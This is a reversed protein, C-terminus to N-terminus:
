VTVHSFRKGPHNVPLRDTGFLNGRMTTEQVDDKKRILGREQLVPTVLEAFDKFSGPKIAYTINFGDVDAENVWREMEDAIKEPTGVVVPGIGGIGVFEAIERINWKKNPDVKTFIEVRSRMSDNEVFQLDEDLDYESLDIGTWGSFLSMAGEISIHQKYDEYKADAEEQTRGVIPTFLSYVKIDEGKRGFEEAQGRIKDVFKRAIDTTPMSVYIGEAHEAAFASGRPSLGAQFIVPTRQPSPECLHAGPVSFYKGKHQIDHVKDPDVYMKRKTDRVVADEDWSQEWLKYCVDLYEEAISYREDHAIQEDLGMNLAASKLYSTVVNWGVRGKTLHDLTSMRRSFTYPHEHTVSATIGFSLNKTVAAMAPVILLPDNIPSQVAQRLGADRKGEYVDYPGLVDALFVSDFQAEELLKAFEIWYNIDTYRHAESDPHSWLGPSQNSPCNMDFANLLIRKKTM